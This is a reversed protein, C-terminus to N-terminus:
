HACHGLQRARLCLTASGTERNAVWGAREIVSGRGVKWEKITGEVEAELRAPFTKEVRREEGYKNGEIVTSQYNYALIPENRDVNAGATRLLETVTIPYHLNQPSRLLM